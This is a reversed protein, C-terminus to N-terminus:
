GITIRDNKFIIYKDVVFGDSSDMIYRDVSYDLLKFDFDSHKINLIIDDAMGIKCYCLPVAMTYGPQQRTGPQISRMWLPLYNRETVGVSKIRDQWNSISNSRFLM